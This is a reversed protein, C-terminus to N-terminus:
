TVDGMAPERENIERLKGDQTETSTGGMGDMM